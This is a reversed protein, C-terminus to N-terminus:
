PTLTKKWGNERAHRRMHCNACRVDCKQIEKWVLDWPHSKALTAVEARKRGRVHDFTLVVPDQENCDVCPHQRLYELIKDGNEDRYRDSVKRAKKIYYAKNEAYHKRIEKRTCDKCAARRKGESKKHWNFSEIGKVEGCKTCRKTEMWVHVSVRGRFGKGPEFRRM